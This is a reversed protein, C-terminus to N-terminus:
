PRRQPLFHKKEPENSIVEFLDALLLDDIADNDLFETIFEYYVGENKKHCNDLLQLENIMDKQGTEKFLVMFSAMAMYIQNHNFLTEIGRIMTMIDEFDYYQLLYIVKRVAHNAIESVIPCIGIEKKSLEKMIAERRKEKVDMLVVEDIRKKAVMKRVIREYKPIYIARDILWPM